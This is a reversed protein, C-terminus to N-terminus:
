GRWAVRPCSSSPPSASMFVQLIERMLKKVLLLLLLVVFIHLLQLMLLLLSLLVVFVFLIDGTYFCSAMKSVMVRNLTLLLLSYTWMWTTLVVFRTTRM